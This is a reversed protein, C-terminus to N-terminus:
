YNRSMSSAKCACARDGGELATSVKGARIEKIAKPCRFHGHRKPIPMLGPVWCKGLKRGTGHNRRPWSTDFDTWGEETDQPLIRPGVYDAPM